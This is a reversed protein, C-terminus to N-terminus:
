LVLVGRFEAHMLPLCPPFGEVLVAPMHPTRFHALGRTPRFFCCFLLASCLLGPCPSCLVAECLTARGWPLRAFLAWLGSGGRVCAHTCVQMIVWTHMTRIHSAMYHFFLHTNAVLLPRAPPAEGGPAPPPQVPRLLVLQAVTAVRQPPPPARCGPTKLPWVCVCFSQHPARRGLLHKLQDGCMPAVCAGTAASSLPFCTSPRAAPPRLSSGLPGMPSAQLAHLLHPSSQLMPGFVHGYPSPAGPTPPFFDKLSLERQM